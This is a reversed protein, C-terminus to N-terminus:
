AVKTFASDQGQGFKLRMLRYNLIGHDAPFGWPFAAPDPLGADHAVHIVFGYPPGGEVKVVQGKAPAGGFLTGTVLDGVAPDGGNAYAM